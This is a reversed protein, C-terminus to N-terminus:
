RLCRLKVIGFLLCMFSYVYFSMFMISIHKQKKLDKRKQSKTKKSVLNSLWDVFISCNHCIVQFGVKLMAILIIFLVFCMSKSTFVEAINYTNSVRVM